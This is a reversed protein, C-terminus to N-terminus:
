DEVGLDPEIGDLIIYNLLISRKGSCELPRCNIDYSEIAKHVESHEDLATAYQDNNVGFMSILIKESDFDNIAELYEVTEPDDLDNPYLCVEKYRREFDVDGFVPYTNTHKSFATCAIVQPINFYPYLGHRCEPTLFYHINRKPFDSYDDFFFKYITDKGSYANMIKNFVTKDKITLFNVIPMSRVKLYSPLQDYMDKYNIKVQNLAGNNFTVYLLLMDEDCVCCQYWLMIGLLTTTVGFVQRIYRLDVNEGKLFNDLLVFTTSNMKYKSTSETSSDSKRLIKWFFYYPNHYCEKIIRGKMWPTLTKKYPDVNLLRKDHLYFVRKEDGFLDIKMPEKKRKFM